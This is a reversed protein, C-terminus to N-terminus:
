PTSCRWRRPSASRPEPPPKLPPAPRGCAWRAPPSGRRASRRSRGGREGPTSLKRSVERCSGSAIMAWCRRRRVLVSCSTSASGAPACARSRSAKGPMRRTCTIWTTSPVANSSARAIASSTSATSSSEPLGGQLDFLEAPRPPPVVPADAGADDLCQINRHVQGTPQIGGVGRFRDRGHLREAQVHAGPHTARVERQVHVLEVLEGGRERVLGRGLLRTAAPHDTFGFVGREVSPAPHPTGAIVLGPFRDEASRREPTTRREVPAGRDGGRPVGAVTSRQGPRPLM